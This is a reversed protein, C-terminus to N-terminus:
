ERGNRWARDSDIVAEPFAPLPLWQTTYSASCFRGCVMHVDLLLKGDGGDVLGRPTNCELCRASM